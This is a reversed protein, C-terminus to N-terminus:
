VYLLLSCGPACPHVGVSVCVTTDVVEYMCIYMM